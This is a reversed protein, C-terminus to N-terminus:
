GGAKALRKMEEIGPRLAAPWAEELAPTWAAGEAAKAARCIAQLFADYDEPGISWRAHQRGYDEITRRVAATGEGAEFLALLATRLRVYQRELDTAHFLGQLDPRLAFLERYIAPFFATGAACRDFSRRALQLTLDSSEIEMVEHIAGSAEAISPWRAAPDRSLMRALAERFAPRRGVSLAELSAPLPEAFSAQKKEIDKLKTVEAPPEGTLLECLLEGLQYQDSRADTDHGDYQEPTLYTLEELSLGGESRDKARRLWHVSLVARGKPDAEDFLIHSPRIAGHVM